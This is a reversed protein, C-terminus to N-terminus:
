VSARTFEHIAPEVVIGVNGSYTSTGFFLTSTGSVTTGTAGYVAAQGIVGSDVTGSGGGSTLCTNGGDTSFCTASTTGAVTLQSFPTTTGVGIKGALTFLSSTGIPPVVRITINNSYTGIFNNVTISGSNVCTVDTHSLSYTYQPNNSSTFSSTISCLNNFLGITHSGTSVYVSSTINYQTPNSDITFGTANSSTVSVIGGSIHCSPLLLKKV